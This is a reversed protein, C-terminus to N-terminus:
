FDLAPAGKGACALEFASWLKDVESPPLKDLHGATVGAPSVVADALEHLRSYHAFRVAKDADSGKPPNGARRSAEYRRLASRGEVTWMASSARLEHRLEDLRDLIAKAEDEDVDDLDDRSLIRDAEELLDLRPTIRVARRANRVGAIFADLDFDEADVDILNATEMSENAPPANFATSM